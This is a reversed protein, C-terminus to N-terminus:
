IPPKNLLLKAGLWGGFFLSTSCIGWKQALRCLWRPDPQSLPMRGILAHVLMPLVEGKDSLKGIAM